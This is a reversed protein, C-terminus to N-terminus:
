STLYQVAVDYANLMPGYRDTNWQNTDATAGIDNEEQFSSIAANLEHQATTAADTQQRSTAFALSDTADIMTRVSHVIVLVRPPVDNNHERSEAPAIAQRADAAAQHSQAFQQKGIADLMTHERLLAEYIARGVVEQDSAATLAQDAQRLGSLATAARHDLASGPGDGLSLPGLLALTSRTQQLVQEQARVHGLAERYQSLRRDSEARAAAPGADQSIEAASLFQSLAADVTPEDFVVGSLAKAETAAASRGMMVAVAVLGLLIVAAIALLLVGRNRRLWSASEVPARPSAHAEVAV